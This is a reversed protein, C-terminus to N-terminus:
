LEPQPAAPPALKGGFGVVVGPADMPPPSFTPEVKNTFGNNM